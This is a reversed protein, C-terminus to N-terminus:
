MAAIFEGVSAFRDEAKKSLARHIAEATRRPVDPARDTIPIVPLDTHGRVVSALDTATGLPHEGALLEYVILALSYQDARADAVHGSLVEPAMYMLTGVVGASHGSQVFTQEDDGIPNSMKALGFDLVRPAPLSGHDRVIMINEPKLDRHVIGASHAADIAEGVPKIIALMAPMSQPGAMITKRLTDGDLYEMVLYAHGSALVGFDHITVIAPHRLRAVIRAEREFRSRMSSSGVLHSLLVKIAVPRNLRKQTALYVSGMGGRGLLRTVVYKDEIIRPVGSEPVLAESDLECKSADAAYCRGCKPCLQLVDSTFLHVPAPSWVLSPSQKLRTYDLTLALQAGLMRLLERDERSYPEESKREGLVMLGVLRKDILLPVILYADSHRLWAREGEPLRQLLGRTHRSYVDLPDDDTALLTALTGSATLPLVEFPADEGRYFGRHLEGGEPDVQWLAIHKPHLAKDIEDLAARSLALMDSGGRIISVVHLLLRRADYQERFFRRDLAELLRKRYHVVGILPLLLLLYIAPRGTLLVALSDTRHAYLFLALGVVPLSMLALLTGRALAYQLSRRVLVRINYLRHRVVAYAYLASGFMTTPFHLLAATQEWTHGLALADGVFGITFALVGPLLSLFVLQVRRRANADRMRTFRVALTVLAGVLLATGFSSYADEFPLLAPRVVGDLRQLGNALTEVFIPIAVVYPVVEWLRRLRGTRESAFILAFHFCAAFFAATFIADVVILPLHLIRPIHELVAGFGSLEYTFLTAAWYVLTLASLRADYNGPRLVLLAIGLGLMWVHLPFALYGTVASLTRTGGATFNARRIDEASILTVALTRRVGDREIVVPITDGARTFYLPVLGPAVSHGNVSLVRDGATLGARAAPTDPLVSRVLGTERSYEFGSFPRTIRSYFNLSLFVAAIVVQVWCLMVLPKTKM